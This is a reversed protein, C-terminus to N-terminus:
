ATALNVQTMAWHVPHALRTYIELPTRYATVAEALLATGKAGATRNGQTPLVAALNNQARARLESHTSFSTGALADRIMKAAYHLWRSGYRLRHTYLIETYNLCKRVPDKADILGFSDAAASLIDSAQEARGRMLANRARVIKTEAAIETEVEDVRYLLSEVEDFDLRNAVDQAADM